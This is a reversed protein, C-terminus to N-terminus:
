GARSAQDGTVAQYIRGVAGLLQYQAQMVDLRENVLQARVNYRELDYALVDLISRRGIRFQEFVIDRAQDAQGILEALFALRDAKESQLRWLRVVRDRLAVEAYTARSKASSLSSEAASQRARGAGSDFPLSLVRLRLAFGNLVQAKGLNDIESTRAGEVALQPMWWNRTADVAAAGERVELDATRVAPSSEALSICEAMSQPMHGSMDPVGGIPEVIVAALEGIRARAEDRAIERSRM